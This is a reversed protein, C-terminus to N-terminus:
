WAGYGEKFNNIIKLSEANIAKKKDVRHMRLLICYTDKLMCIDRIEGNHDCINRVTGRRESWLFLM